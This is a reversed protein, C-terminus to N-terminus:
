EEVDNTFDYLIRNRANQEGTAEDMGWFLEFDFFRTDILEGNESLAVAFYINGDMGRMRLEGDLYNGGVWYMNEPHEMTIAYDFSYIHIVQGPLIDDYVATEQLNLLQYGTYDAREGPTDTWNVRNADIERLDQLMAEMHAKLQPAYREAAAQDM